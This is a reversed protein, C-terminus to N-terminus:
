NYPRRKTEVREGNMFPSRLILYTELLADQRTVKPVLRIIENKQVSGSSGSAGGGGASGSAGVSCAGLSAFGAEVASGLAGDFTSGFGGEFIVVSGEFGAGRRADM